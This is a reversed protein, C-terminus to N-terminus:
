FLMRPWAIDPFQFFTTARAEATKVPIWIWGSCITFRTSMMPLGRSLEGDWSELRGRRRGRKFSSSFSSMLCRRVALRAVLSLRCIIKSNRFAGQVVSNFTIFNIDFCKCLAHRGIGKTKARLLSQRIIFKKSVAKTSFEANMERRLNLKLRKKGTETVLEDYTMNETVRQVLDLFEKERDKLEIATEQGSGEVFIEFAVMPNSGSNESPKLNVVIRKLLIVHESLQLSGFFDEWRTNPDIEYIKDAVFDYSGFTTKDSPTLLYDMLPVTAVIAALTLLLSVALLKARPSGTLIRIIKGFFEAFFHKISAIIKKYDKLQKLTAVTTQPLAKVWEVSKETKGRTWTQANSTKGVFRNMLRAAFGDRKKPAAPHANGGSPERELDKESDEYEFVPAIKVKPAANVDMHFEALKKAFGPAEQELLQDILKLAEPDIEYEM